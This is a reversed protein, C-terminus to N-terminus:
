STGPHVEKERVLAREWERSIEAKTMYLTLKQPM